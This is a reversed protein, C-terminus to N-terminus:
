PASKGSKEKRFVHYPAQDAGFMKEDFAPDTENYSAGKKHNHQYDSKVGDYLEKMDTLGVPMGLAACGIDTGDMGEIVADAAEKAGSESADAAYTGKEHKREGEFYKITKEVPAKAGLAALVGATGSAVADAYQGLWPMSNAVYDQFGVADLGERALLYAGVGAAVTGVAKYTGPHKHYNDAVKEKVAAYGDSVGDLFTPGM